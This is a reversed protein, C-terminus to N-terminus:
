VTEDFRDILEREMESSVRVVAANAAYAQSASKLDVIEQAFDVNPAAVLGDKDAYPSDPAYAPVSAPDRNVYQASTGQPAGNQATVSTQVVDVPAYPAPGDQGDRAGATGANAINSAAANARTSAAQLGSLAISLPDTM